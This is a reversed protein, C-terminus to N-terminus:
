RLDYGIELFGSRERGPFYRYNGFAYDARIAVLSEQRSGRQIYVGPM